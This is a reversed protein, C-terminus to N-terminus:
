ASTWEEYSPHVHRPANPVASRLELAVKGRVVQRGPGEVRPWAIM